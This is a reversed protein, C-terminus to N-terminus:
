LQQISIQELVYKRAVSVLSRNYVRSTTPEFGVRTFSINLIKIEEIQYRSLARHQNVCNMFNSVKLFINNFSCFNYLSITYLFGDGINLNYQNLIHRWSGKYTTSQCYITVTLLFFTAEISSFLLIRVNFHFNIIKHKESM